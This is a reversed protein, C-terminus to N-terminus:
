LLAYGCAKHYYIFNSCWRVIRTYRLVELDNTNSTYM